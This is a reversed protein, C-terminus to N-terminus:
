FKAAVVLLGVVLSFALAIALIVLLLGTKSEPDYDSM